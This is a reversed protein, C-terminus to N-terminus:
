GWARRWATGGWSGGGRVCPSTLCQRVACTARARTVCPGCARPRERQNEGQCLGPRRLRAPQDQRPVDCQRQEVQGAQLHLERDPPLLAEQQQSVLRVASLSHGGFGRGRRRNVGHARLRRLFVVRKRRPRCTKARVRFDAQRAGWCEGQVLCLGVALALAAYFRRAM